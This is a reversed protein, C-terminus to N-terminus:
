DKVCLLFVGWGFQGRYVMYYRKWDEIDTRFKAADPDGPNAKLWKHIKVWHHTQYRDWGEDDTLVMNLLLVGAKDFIEYLGPLTSFDGPQIGMADAAQQNPERNWFPEGVLLLGKREDKLAKRMLQITGAVGGGIETAGLCSVIDYAPPNQTDLAADTHLFEVRPAVSLEEARRRATAIFVPNMDVGTGFIGYLQAWRCLMEGHGCALDLLRSGPRMYGLEQCMKGLFMLREESFPNQIRVGAESIEIFRMDM